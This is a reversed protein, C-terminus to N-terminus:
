RRSARAVAMPLLFDDTFEGRSVKVLTEGPSDAVLEESGAKRGPAGLAELKAAFERVLAADLRWRFSKQNAATADPRLGVPAEGATIVVRTDSPAAFSATELGKAEGSAVTLRLLTALKRLDEAEGLVLLMPHFDSPLYSFRLM